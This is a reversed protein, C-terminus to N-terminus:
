PDRIRGSLFRDLSRPEAEALEMERLIDQVASAPNAAKSVPRGVVIFTAGAAIAEGPTAVRAQDGHDSGAPRIGPVVIALPAPGSPSGTFHSGSSEGELGGQAPFKQRLSKLEHSSSVIGGCGARHAMEALRMVQQSASSPIGIDALDASDLSTLVTVALVLPHGSSAQAAEVAAKLSEMGASAHVTFMGVRLAAAARAASGVTTPTDHFKLDLFVKRGSSVLDRVIGPGERTFLQLGVKYWAAADGIQGVLAQAEAGNSVDLAVILRERLGAM